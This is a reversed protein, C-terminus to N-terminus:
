KSSSSPSMRSHELAIVEIQTHNHTFLIHTYPAAASSTRGAIIVSLIRPSPSATTNFPPRPSLKPQRRQQFHDQFHRHHKFITFLDAPNDAGAIHKRDIHDEAVREHTM